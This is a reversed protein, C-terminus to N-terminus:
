RAYRIKRRAITVKPEHILEKEHIYFQAILTKQILCKQFENWRLVESFIIIKGVIQLELYIINNEYVYIRVKVQCLLKQDLQLLILFEKDFNLTMPLMIKKRFIDKLM